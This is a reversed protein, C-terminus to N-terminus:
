KVSGQETKRRRRYLLFTGTLILSGGMLVMMMTDFLSGAQPIEGGPGKPVDPDDIDVWGSPPGEEEIETLPINRFKLMLTKSPAVEVALKDNNLAYGEPAGTEQLTYKGPKLNDFHVIGDKGSVATKLANGSEDFLTFIAGALPKSAKDVKKIQISGNKEPEPEPTIKKNVYSVTLTELSDVKLTIQRTGLEYGEPAKSELITYDGAPVQDFVVLGDKGSIGSQILVGKADYLRFEADALVNGAEDTKLIEIKGLIDIKEAKNVVTFSATASDSVSVTIDETSLVYGKPASTERVIYEGPTLHTFWAMGNSGSVTSALAKGAKDYLTFSAGQLKTGEEDTKLISISGFSPEYPVQDNKLTDANDKFVPKAVATKSNDAYSVTVTLKDGTLQYGSPPITEEITYSKGTANVPVNKFTVIGDVAFALAEYSGFDSEGSIKFTGGNIKITDSASNKKTFSVDTVAPANKLIVSGNDMDAMSGDPKTITVELGSRTDNYKVEAELVPMNAPDSNPNLYRHPAKTEIIKYKGQSITVGYFSVTGDDAVAATKDVPQNNHDTGSLKFEAGSAILDIVAGNLDTKKFSFQTSVPDNTITANAPNYTVEVDTRAINGGVTVAIAASNLQHGAPAETETVTYVGIPVDDFTVIGNVAAVDEVTFTQGNYSSTGTLKFKGGSLPVNNAGHKKIVIPAKGLTNTFSATLIINAEITGAQDTSITVYGQGTYDAETVTYQTGAPLGTITISQGHTLSIFDGSKIIGHPVGNGTYAYTGNLGELTIRFGFPKHADGDSGAVTKSITLGGYEPQPDGSKYNKVNFFKGTDANSFVVVDEGNSVTTTKDAAVKVTYVKSNELYGSPAATEKLTYVAPRLARVIVTGNAGTTVTRLAKDGYYLTFTAPNGTIANGNSGVKKIQFWGGLALAASADSDQINYQANSDTKKATVGEVLVENKITGPNGVLATLYTIRYSTTRQAGTLEITLKRTASDYKVNGSTIWGPALNDGTVAYSGDKQIAMAKISFRPETGENGTDPSLNTDLWLEAGAPLTDTITVKDHDTVVGAVRPNYNIEWKLIGNIDNTIKGQKKGVVDTNVTVSVNGTAGGGNGTLIVDNRQSISTPNNKVLEAYKEDTLRAKVLIVYHKDLTNFTFTVTKRGNGATGFVKSTVPDVGPVTATSGEFIKYGKTNWSEDFEWGEPLTDAVVIDTKGKFENDSLNQGTSNISLRFIATRTTHNFGNGSSGNGTSGNLADENDTAVLVTKKLVEVDIEPSATADKRKTTGDFLTATNYATVTGNTTFSSPDLMKSSFKVSYAQATTFGSIEILDAVHEGGKMVKIQKVDLGGTASILANYKQGYQPTLSNWIAADVSDPKDGKDSGSKGHVLLDYVKFNAISSSGIEKLDVTVTWNVLHNQIWNADFSGSKNLAHFGVGVGPNGSEIGGGPKTDWTVSAKNYMTEADTTYDGEKIEAETLIVLRLHDSTTGSYIYKHQAPVGTIDHGSVDVWNATQGAAATNRQWKASKWVLRSNLQDTVTINTLPHRAENVEIYWYIQRDLPNNPDVREGAKNIYTKKTITVTDIDTNNKDNLTVKASNTFSSATFGYKVTDWDDITTEFTIDKPGNGDSATFTYSLTKTAPTYVDVDAKFNGGVKFSDNVYTIGNPLSDTFVIDKLAQGSVANKLADVTITWTIVGTSPDLASEKDVTPEIPVVPKYVKFDKGIITVDKAEDGEGIGSGDYQMSAKFTINTIDTYGKTEDWLDAEFDIRAQLGTGGPGPQFTLTGIKIKTNNVTGELDLPMSSGVLTVKPDISFVAYDGEELWDGGELPKTIPVNEFVGNVEFDKTVDINGGVAITSGGQKITMTLLPKLWGACDVGTVFAGIADGSTVESDGTGANLAPDDGMAALNQPIVMQFAMIIAVIFAIIKIKKM